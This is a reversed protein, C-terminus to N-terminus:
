LIIVNNCRNCIVTANTSPNQLELTYSCKSCTVYPRDALDYYTKRASETLQHTGHRMDNLLKNSPITTHKQCNSCLIMNTDDIKKSHCMACETIGALNQYTCSSCTWQPTQLAHGCESCNFTTPTASLEQFKSKTTETADKMFQSIDHSTKVFANSLKNAPVEMSAHCNPCQLTPPVDSRCPAQCQECTDSKHRNLHNCSSCTWDFLNEPVPINQSCHQCIIDEPPSM